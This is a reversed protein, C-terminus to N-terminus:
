KRRSVLALAERIAELKFVFALAIYILAFLIGSLALAMFLSLTSQQLILYTSLSSVATICIYPFLDVVQALLGYDLYKKTYYSNILLALLSSGVQGLVMAYIGYRFTVALISLQLTKKIIELRLFLKALGKATLVTLNLSHIPYLAGVVCLVQLLPVSSLWKEGILFRILDESVLALVAMTPFMIFGLLKIVRKTTQRMLREDDQVSAMLPFLVRGVIAQLNTVPLQQFGKARQYFAVQAPPYFRGIVLAYINKFISDLVQSFGMRFGYGVLTRLAAMSFPATPRWGGRQWLFLSQLLKGALSAGVLAWVGFGAYAWSLGLLGALLQGPIIAKTQDKFNMARQMLAVQVMSTAQFFLGVSLVRVILTLRPQHYFNSILPAAACLCVMLLMSFFLNCYLVSECDSPELEKKQVLADSLGARVLVESIAVFVMVMAVLGYESPAIMRALLLGMGFTLGQTFIRDVTSWFLGSRASHAITMNASM